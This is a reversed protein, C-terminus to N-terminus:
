SLLLRRRRRMMLSGGLLLLLAIGLLLATHAEGGTGPLEEGGDGDGDGGAQVVLTLTVTDTGGPGEVLIEILFTGDSDPTGTLTGDSTLTLGPPIGDLASWTLPGTGTAALTASYPSGATADPLSVTTISPAVSGAAIQLTFSATDIGGPGSVEVAVTAPGATTPTGSLTGDDALSLGDPLPSTESWSLPGSGTAALNTSYLTGVAADPLSATTIVPPTAAANITLTFSESDTGGLGTVQVAVTAPGFVTPTGSLTGDAALSLGDPLPSTEAWTLPGTGTATLMESYFAGVTADPLSTTTIEPPTPPAAPDIVLTTTAVTPMSLGGNTVHVHVDFSGAITPTGSILGTASNISLGPPLENPAVGEAWSLTGPGTAAVLHSYPTGVMGGPPPWDTIFIAGVIEIPYSEVADPSVGNSVTIEVTFSGSGSPSGSIVGTSSNISLGSPLGTASFELTPDGTATVTFSYAQFQEGDPLAGSTITPAIPAPDIVVTYSEVAAPSVGNSATVEVTFTGDVSPTGSIAGSASDSSLATPLGTASFTPAPSGSATVTFSYSDGVQGDPLAGSTIVPAVGASAIVVTYEATPSPLAQGEARIEFTYSGATTPTGILQDGVISLGPPLAPSGPALGWIIPTLGTATFTHAYSVDVAGNPPAASTITPSGNGSRYIYTGMPQQVLNNSADRAEVTWTFQDGSNLDLDGEFYNGNLNNSIAGGAHTTWSTTKTLAPNTVSAFVNRAQISGPATLDDNLTAAFTQAISHYVETGNAPSVLTVTPPTTDLEGTVEVDDIHISWGSPSAGAPTQLLYFQLQFGSAFDALASIDGTWTQWGGSNASLNAITTFSSGSNPRAAVVFEQSSDLGSVNYRFSLQVNQHDSTDISRQLQSWGQIGDSGSRATGSDAVWYDNSWGVIGASFDDSFITEPAAAAPSALGFTVLTGAIVAAITQRLM